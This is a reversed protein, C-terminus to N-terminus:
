AGPHPGDTSVPIGVIPRGDRDVVQGSLGTARIAAAIMLCIIVGTLLKLKRKM